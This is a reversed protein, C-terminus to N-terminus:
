QLTSIDMDDDAMAGLLHTGRQRVGIDVPYQLRRLQTGSMGHGLRHRSDRIFVRYQHHIAIDRQNAFLRQLWQVLQRRLPHRGQQRGLQIIGGTITTDQVMGIAADAANHFFFIGTRFLLSDVFDIGTKKGCRGRAQTAPQIRQIVVIGLAFIVQRVHNRTGHGLAGTHAAYRGLIDLFDHTDVVALM